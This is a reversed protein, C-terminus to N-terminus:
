IVAGFILEFRIVKVRLNYFWDISHDVQHRKISKIVTKIPMWLIVDRKDIVYFESFQIRIALYDKM